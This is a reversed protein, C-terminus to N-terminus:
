CGQKISTGPQYYCMGHTRWYTYFHLVSTSCLFLWSDWCSSLLLLTAQWQCPTLVPDTCRQKERQGLMCLALIREMVWFNNIAIIMIVLFNLCQDLVTLYYMFSNVQYTHKKYDLMRRISFWLSYFVRIRQKVKLPFKISGGNWLWFFNPVFKM